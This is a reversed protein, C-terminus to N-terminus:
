RDFRLYFSLYDSVIQNGRRWNVMMNGYVNRETVLECFECTETYTIKGDFDTVDLDQFFFGGYPTDVFFEYAEMEEFAEEILFQLQVGIETAGEKGDQMFIDYQWFETSGEYTYFTDLREEEYSDSLIFMAGGVIIAILIFPLFQKM